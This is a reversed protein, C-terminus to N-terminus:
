EVTRLRRRLGEMAYRYRSAVTNASVSLADAIQQFTMQEYIKLHIIERQEPSLTRLAAELAQRDDENPEEPSIPELLPEISSLSVQRKDRRQKRLVDYCHHRLATRLYDRLSNVHVINKMGALKVFTQQVADEAAAPDALIMLAYRYLEDAWADYAAELMEHPEAAPRPPTENDRYQARHKM